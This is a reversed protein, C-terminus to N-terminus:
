RFTGTTKVLLRRSLRRSRAIMSRSRSILEEKEVVVREGADAAALKQREAPAIGVKSALIMRM